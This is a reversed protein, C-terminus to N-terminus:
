MDEGGGMRCTSGETHGGLEGDGGLQASGGPVCM